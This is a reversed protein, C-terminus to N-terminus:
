QHVCTARSGIANRSHVSRFTQAAVAVSAYVECKTADVTVTSPKGAARYRETLFEACAQLDQAFGAAASASGDEWVFAEFSEAGTFRVPHSRAHALQALAAGDVDNRNASDSPVCGTLSAYTERQADTMQIHPPPRVPRKTRLARPRKVLTLEIDRNNTNIAALIGNMRETGFLWFAYVPGFREIQEALHAIIIHMNSTVSAVGNLQQWKTVFSRLLRVGEDRQARTLMVDCSWLAVSMSSAKRPPRSLAATLALVASHLPMVRKPESEPDSASDPNPNSNPGALV